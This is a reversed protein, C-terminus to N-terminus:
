QDARSTLLPDTQLRLKAYLRLAADAYLRRKTVDRLMRRQSRTLPQQLLRLMHRLVVVSRQLEVRLANRPRHKLLRARRRIKM